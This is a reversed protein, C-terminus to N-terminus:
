WRLVCAHVSVCFGLQLLMDPSWDKQRREPGTNGSYAKGLKEIMTGRHVLAGDTVLQIDRLGEQGKPHTSKM